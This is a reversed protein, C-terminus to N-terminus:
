VNYSFSGSGQPSVKLGEFLAQWCQPLQTKRLDHFDAWFRAKTARKGKNSLIQETLGQSFVDFVEINHDNETAAQLLRRGLTKVATSLPSTVLTKDDLVASVAGRIMGSAMNSTTYDIDPM